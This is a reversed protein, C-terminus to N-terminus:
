NSWNNWHAILLPFILGQKIICNFLLKQASWLINPYLFNLDHKGSLVQSTLYQLSKGHEATFWARTRRPRECTYIQSEHLTSTAQNPSIDELSVICCWLKLKALPEPFPSPGVRHQHSIRRRWPEMWYAPFLSHSHAPLDSAPLRQRITASTRKQWVCHSFLQPM